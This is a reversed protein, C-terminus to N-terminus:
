SEPRVLGRRVAYAVVQARNQLQLRELIRRLHYKITNDTVGLNLAIEKNTQGEVLLRLVDMERDSLSEEAQEKAGAGERRSFEELIKAAIDPTIAAEGKEVAGLLSALEESRVNKLLYGQAGSKIAEYINQSDESSTLMVIKTDPMEAKILRTAELGDCRPMIIDLLVIDPRLERVKEVAELGDKAEGVVEIGQATLLSRIGDRFLTHDDVVLVRV